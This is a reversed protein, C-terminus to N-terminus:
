EEKYLRVVYTKGEMDTGEYKDCVTGKRICKLHVELEPDWDEDNEDKPWVHLVANM